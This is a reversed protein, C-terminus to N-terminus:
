LVFVRKEDAPNVSSQQWPETFRGADVRWPWLTQCLYQRSGHNVNCEIALIQTHQAHVHSVSLFKHKNRREHSLFCIFASDLTSSWYFLTYALPKQTERQKILSLVCLDGFSFANVESKNMRQRKLALHLAKPCAVGGLILSFRYCKKWM